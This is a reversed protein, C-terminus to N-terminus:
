EAWYLGLLNALDGAALYTVGADYVCPKTFLIDGGAAKATYAGPLISFVLEGNRRVVAGLTPEWTVDCGLAEAVARIPLLTKDAQYQTANPVTEGSLLLAGAEEAELWGRYGYTFVMVRKVTGATDSWVLIHAGPVLNGHSVANKTLYPFLEAKEPVTVTQGGDVTLVTNKGDPVARSVEYYAPVAFDAPIHALVLKATGQPPLSATVVPGMYAYITEGDKLDAYTLPAGTVADLYVIREGRLIIEQYPDKDNSNKLHLGGDELKTLTGWVRTMSPVLAADKPAILLDAALAPVSLLAACLVLSCIRNLLQKM